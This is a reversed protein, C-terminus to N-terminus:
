TYDEETETTEKLRPGACLVIIVMGLLVSELSQDRSGAARVERFFRSDTSSLQPHHKNKFNSNSFCWGSSGDVSELNERSTEYARSIGM